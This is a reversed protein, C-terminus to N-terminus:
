RDSGELFVYFQYSSIFHIGIVKPWLSMTNLCLVADHRHQKLATALDPTRRYCFLPCRTDCAAQVLTTLALHFFFGVHKADNGDNADNADNQKRQM